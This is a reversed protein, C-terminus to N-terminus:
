RLKLVVRRTFLICFSVLNPTLVMELFHEPRERTHSFGIYEYRRKLPDRAGSLGANYDTDFWILDSNWAEWCNEPTITQSDTYTTARDIDETTLLDDQLRVRRTEYFYLCQESVGM